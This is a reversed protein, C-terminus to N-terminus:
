VTVTSSLHLLCTFDDSTPGQSGVKMSNQEMEIMIKQYVGNAEDVMGASMLQLQQIRGCLERKLASNSFTLEDVVSRLHHVEDQLDAAQVGFRHVRRQWVISDELQTKVGSAAEALLLTAADGDAEEDADAVRKAREALALELGNVSAGLGKEFAARFERADSVESKMHSLIADCRELENDRESIEGLTQVFLSYMSSIFSKAELMNPGIAGLVQQM